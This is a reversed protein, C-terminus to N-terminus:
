MFIDMSSTYLSEDINLKVFAKAMLNNYFETEKRFLAEAIKRFKDQDGDKLAQRRSPIEKALDKNM